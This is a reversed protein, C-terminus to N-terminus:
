QEATHLVAEGDSQQWFLQQTACSVGTPGSLETSRSFALLEEVM